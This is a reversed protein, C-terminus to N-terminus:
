NGDDPDEMNEFRAQNVWGTERCKVCKSGQCEPCVAFPIGAEITERVKTLADYAADLQDMGLGARLWRAYAGSKSKLKKKMADHDFLLMAEDVEALMRKLWTDGFLDRLKPPVEVGAADVLTDTKMTQRSRTDVNLEKCAWCDPEAGWKKCKPCLKKVRRQKGDAGTRMENEGDDNQDDCSPSNGTSATRVTAVLHNSVHLSDAIRRDSWDPFQALFLTVAKRKDDNTLRVGNDYNENGAAIMADAFTGETVEFVMRKKGARQNSTVRHWGGYLWLKGAETDKMLKPPPLDDLCTMYDAIADENMTARLQLRPDLTIDDLKYERTTKM